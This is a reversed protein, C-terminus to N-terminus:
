SRNALNPRTAAASNQIDARSAAMNFFVKDIDTATRGIFPQRM